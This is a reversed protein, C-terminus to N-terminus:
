NVGTTRSHFAELFFRGVDGLQLPDTTSEILDEHIRYKPKAM